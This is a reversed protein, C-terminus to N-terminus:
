LPSKESRSSLNFHKIEQAIAEVSRDETSIYISFDYQKFNRVCRDTQQFCWDGKEEGRMLLRSEITEPSATLCYHETNSIREFGKRIYNFYDINPISMPVILHCNYKRVLSQAIQVVLEKWLILDQFDGEEAEQQKIDSPLMERLMVGVMEPDYVMSNQWQENLAKAVTTKGVGFAGNIMVIM